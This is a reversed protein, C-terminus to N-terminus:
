VYHHIIGHIPRKSLDHSSTAVVLTLPWAGTAVSRGRWPGFGDLVFLPGSLFHLSPDSARTRGLVWVIRLVLLVLFSCSVGLVLFDDLGLGLLIIPLILHHHLAVFTHPRLDPLLVVSALM